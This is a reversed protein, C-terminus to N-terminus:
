YYRVLAIHGYADLRGKDVWEIDGGKELVKLIIDDIADGVYFGTDPGKGERFGKEIVLLRTNSCRATHRVEELGCSLKGADMAKGVLQVASDQRVNDWQTIYPQLIALLSRPTEEICDKRIFAVIHRTHRSINAFHGTVRNDGFVFVPRPYAKLISALGDDMHRLFKELMVERRDSPDSFNATREPVENLYAFVTQPTNSKIIRLGSENGLYMKSQRASLLLVLYEINRAKGDAIDRVYFPEDVVVKEELPIDLYILKEVDPSAFAVISRKHTSYNLDNLLRRMRTLIPLAEDAPHNALLQREARTLVVKIGQDLEGKSTMKPEFPLLITVRPQEKREVTLNTSGTNITQYYM